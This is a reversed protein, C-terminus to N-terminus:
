RAAIVMPLGNAIGLTGQMVFRPEFGPRLRPTFRQALMALLLHSELLSFNNGICIRPGAAFPHYAYPHRATERERTFRDPDFVEPHAWFQPHRHTYYPSLMVAAGAPVEYGALRDAVVADRVYFPAAPYLRLVEKIVQLTYPLQRLDDATPARGGLVRDLEEHLRATVEPNKALAYWTFTMTRATTEHGAFFTTLSEDRLLKESMAEGTEEDRAKMLKTLLDDPWQAEDIARRGAIIASIARHVMDRATVYKKNKKTPVWVPWQVGAQATSVYSVLTEVADKMQHISEITETSFMAKLIISATVFTMEEAIEVEAGQSALTQWREVLRAGDRLMLETYAQVGKPTYFPALLKRQRRWLDGTSAVLGDGTLYRRVTDYSAVKDYSQRQTVNCHAVADPHIAFILTRRGIRVQFMDGHARWLEGVYDLFGSTRVGRIFAWLGPGPMSPPAAKGGASRRRLLGLLAVLPALVSPGAQACGDPPREHTQQRFNTVEPKLLQRPRSGDGNFVWFQQHPPDVRRLSMAVQTDDSVFQTTPIRAIEGPNLGTIATISLSTESGSALDYRVLEHVRELDPVDEFMTTENCRAAPIFTTTKAAMLLTGADNRSLGDYISISVGSKGEAAATNCAFVPDASNSALLCDCCPEGGSCSGPILQDYANCVPGCALAPRYLELLPQYDDRLPQEWLSVYPLGGGAASLKASYGDPSLVIRDNSLLLLATRWSARMLRDAGGLSMFSLPDYIDIRYDGIVSPLRGLDGSASRPTPGNLVALRTGTPDHALRVFDHPLTEFEAEPVDYSDLVYQARPEPLGYELNASVNTPDGVIVAVGGNGIFDVPRRILVFAMHPGANSLTLERIEYQCLKVVVNDPDIPEPVEDWGCGGPEGSMGTPGALSPVAFFGTDAVGTLLSISAVLAPPPAPRTVACLESQANYKFGVKCCGYGDTVTELNGSYGPPCCAGTGDEAVAWVGPAAVCDTANDPLPPEVPLTVLLDEELTMTEWFSPAAVFVASDDKYPQLGSTPLFNFKTDTLLPLESGDTRLRVITDFGGRSIVGCVNSSKVQLVVTNQVSGGRHTATVELAYYGVVDPTFVLEPGDPPATLDFGDPAVLWRWSLTVEADQPGLEVAPAILVPPGGAFFTPASDTFTIKPGIKPVCAGAECVRDADCTADSKCEVRIVLTNKGIGGRHIATAELAYHGLIAPTFLLEAGVATLTTDFGEPAVIWRWSVEALPAQPGVQVEAVIAAAPDGAFFSRSSPSFTVQPPIKPVCVGVECVRDSDCAADELCPDRCVGSSCVKGSSCEDNTSCVQANLAANQTAPVSPPRCGGLAALVLALRVDPPRYM